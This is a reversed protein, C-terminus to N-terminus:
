TSETRQRRSFLRICVYAHGLGGVGRKDLAPATSRATRTPRTPAGAPTFARAASGGHCSGEPPSLLSAAGGGEGSATACARSVGVFRSRQTGPEPSPMTTQPALASFARCFSSLTAGSPAPRVASPAGRAGLTLPRRSQLRPQMPMPEAGAGIYKKSMLARGSAGAPDSASRMALPSILAGYAM